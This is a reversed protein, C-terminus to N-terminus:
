DLLSVEPAELLAGLAARTSASEALAQSSRSLMGDIGIDTLTTTRALEAIPGLVPDTQISPSSWSEALLANQSAREANGASEYLDHASEHRGLMEDAKARMQDALVSQINTLASKARLPKDLRLWIETAILQQDTNEPDDSLMALLKEAEITFGLSLLRGLMALQDLKPMTAISKESIGLAHQSFTIDDARHTLAVFFIREARLNSIQDTISPEELFNSALHFEDNSILSLFNVRNLEPGLPSDNLEEAFAEVLRATEATVPVGNSFNADILAIIAEPAEPMNQAIVRELLISAAEHDGKAAELQAAIIAASAPKVNSVRSLTRLAAESTEFDGYQRLRKAFEPAIIARLQEPLRGLSNVAYDTSIAESTDLEAKALLAWLAIDGECQKMSGFTGPDQMYGNDIIEAIALLTQYNSKEAKEALLVLRAEIGFGFYLFLKALRQAIEPDVEDFEKYLNRRLESVQLHFPRQNSWTHTDVEEDSVCPQDVSTLGKTPLTSIQVKDRSNSILLNVQNTEKFSNESKSLPLSSPDLDIENDVEESNNVPRKALLIGKTVATGIEQSLAIKMRQLVKPSSRLPAEGFNMTRETALASQTPLATIAKSALLDEIFPIPLSVGASAVDIVLYRGREVFAAVRCDCGLLITLSEESQTLELIRDRPIFTFVTSTDFGSTWQNVTLTVKRGRHEVSWAAGIPLTAVLRSFNPHEGSQLSAAQAQANIPALLILLMLIVGSSRM